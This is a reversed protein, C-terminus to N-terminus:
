YKKLMNLPGNLCEVHSVANVNIKNISSCSINFCTLPNVIIIIICMM